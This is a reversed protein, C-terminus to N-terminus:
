SFPTNILLVIILNLAALMILGLTLCARLLLKWAALTKGKAGLDAVLTKARYWGHYLCSFLFIDALIFTFPTSLILPNRYVSWVAVPLFFALMTATGSFVAYGFAPPIKSTKETM